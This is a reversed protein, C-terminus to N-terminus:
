LVSDIEALLFRNLQESCQYPADWSTRRQRADTLEVRKSTAAADAGGAQIWVDGKVLCAGNDYDAHGVVALGGASIRTASIQSKLGRRELRHSIAEELELRQRNAPGDLDLGDLRLFIHGNLLASAQKPVVEGWATPGLLAIILLAVRFRFSLVL